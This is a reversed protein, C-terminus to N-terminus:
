KLAMKCHSTGEGRGGKITSFIILSSLTTEDVRPNKQHASFNFLMTGAEFFFPRRSSSIIFVQSNMSIWQSFTISAQQDDPASLLRNLTLIGCICIATLLSWRRMLHDLKAHSGLCLFNFGSSSKSVNFFTGKRECLHSFSIGVVADDGTGGREAKAM